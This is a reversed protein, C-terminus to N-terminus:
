FSMEPPTTNNKLTEKYNREVPTAPMPYKSTQYVPTSQNPLSTNVPRNTFERKSNSTLQHQGTFWNTYNTNLTYSAATKASIKDRLVRLIHRREADKIAKIVGQRSLTTKDQFRKLSIPATEKRYGITHDIVTLVIQYTSGPLKARMLAEFLPYDLRRFKPKQPFRM